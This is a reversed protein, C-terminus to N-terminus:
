CAVWIPRYETGIKIAIVFTNIPIPGLTTDRNTVTITKSADLGNEFVSLTQTKPGNISTAAELIGDLKGEVILDGFSGTDNVINGDCNMYAVRTDNCYWAQIVSDGNPEENEAHILSEYRVELPADADLRADGISINKRDTRGAISNQINMRNSMATSEFMLRQNDLLGCVIELNGVGGEENQLQDSGRLAHRGIGISETYTVNQGANPGIFIGYQSGDANKGANSGICIAQSVNDCDYGAATGIFINSYDSPNTVINPNSVTALAGATSGLMISNYQGSAGYAVECGIMVSRANAATNVNLENEPNSILVNCNEAISSTGSSVYDALGQLSMKGINSSNTGDLQVAVFTNDTRINSSRNGALDLQSYDLVFYSSNNSGQFIKNVGSTGYTPLLEFDSLGSLSTGDQFRIAGRLKFDADLRAFPTCDTPEQYNPTNTLLCGKPDLEFLTRTLGDENSFNFLLNDEGHDSGDQNYDIIDLVINHRDNFIDTNISVKLESNSPNRVSFYGDVISIHKDSNQNGIILPSSGKGIAIAGDDPIDGLFLSNGILIVDDINGTKIDEDTNTLSNVGLVINDSARSYGKLSDCGVVTNENSNSPKLGSGAYSGILTNCNVTGDDSLEFGAAWGYYTNKSKNSDAQRVEPTYWGGYTNGNNGYILGDSSVTADLDQSLVLNTVNGDDDQFYLAQSRGGVTYPKVYLKGYASEHLPPDVPQEHMAITGSDMHDDCIYAITLPAVPYFRSENDFPREYDLGDSTPRRTLGVGVYGRESLTIHAFEAGKEGSARILHFDAVCNDSTNPDVCFNGYDYYGPGVVFANDFEPDYTILLGSARQYGNGILELGTRYQTSPGSSLRSYQDGTAHVHFITQPVFVDNCETVPDYATNTVGVLGSQSPTGGNRLVTVAERIESQGNELHISLRDRM